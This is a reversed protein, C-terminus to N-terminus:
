WELMNEFGVIESLLQDKIPTSTHPRDEVTVRTRNEVPSSNFSLRKADKVNKLPIKQFDEKSQVASITSKVSKNSKQEKPQTCATEFLPLFLQFFLFNNYLVNKIKSM